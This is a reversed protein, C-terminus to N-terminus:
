RLNIIAVIGLLIIAATLAITTLLQKRFNNHAAIGPYYVYGMVLGSFLGGVHAANDTNGQLGSLLNLTIFFLISRLMTKRMTKEIHTTTLVAFFVGYMGFIAGSAGVGVSYHHMTISMLGACIGTLLYASIFRFRGFLPELFMGIYVLAFSNMFLHMFGSHLFMYTLLRWWDGHLVAPRLNGGWEFLSKATPSIPSLGAFVMAIFVLANAYIILPTVLYTKSPVLAGYKERHMPHRNRNAKEQEEIVQAIAQNFRIANVANQREDGIYGNGLISQLTAKDDNITITVIEGMSYHDHRTQCVISHENMAVILWNLLLIAERAAVMHQLPTFHHLSLNEKYGQQGGVDM